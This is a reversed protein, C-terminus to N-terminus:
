FALFQRVCCLPASPDYTLDILLRPDIQDIQIVVGSGGTGRLAKGTDHYRSCTKLQRISM